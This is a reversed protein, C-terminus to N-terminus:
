EDNTLVAQSRLGANRAEIQKEQQAMRAELEQQMRAITREQEVKQHEKLFENLLMANVADYRVGRMDLAKRPALLNVMPLLLRLVVKEPLM